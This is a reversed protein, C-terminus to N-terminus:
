GYPIAFRLMPAQRQIYLGNMLRPPRFQEDSLYGALFRRTQDRFQLVRQDVLQQDYISYNYM